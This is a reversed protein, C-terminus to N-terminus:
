LVNWYKATTLCNGTTCRVSAKSLATILIGALLRIKGETKFPNPIGLSQSGYDFAM